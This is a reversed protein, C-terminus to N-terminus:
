NNYFKMLVPNIFYKKNKYFYSLKTKFSSVEKPFHQKSHFFKFRKKKSGKIVSRVINPFLWYHLMVRKHYKSFYLRQM